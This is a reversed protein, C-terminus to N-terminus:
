GVKAVAWVQLGTACLLLLVRLAHGRDWSEVAATVEAEDSPTTDADGAAAIIKNRPVLFTITGVIVTALAAITLGWLLIPGTTLQTAGAALAGVLAAAYWWPMVRGLSDALSARAATALSTPLRALTPHVLFGVTAEASTLSTTLALSILCIQPSLFDM